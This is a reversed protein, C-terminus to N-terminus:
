YAWEGKILTSYQELYCLRFGPSAIEHHTAQSETQLYIEILWDFPHFKLLQRLYSPQCNIRLCSLMRFVTHCIRAFTCGAVTEIETLHRPVFPSM